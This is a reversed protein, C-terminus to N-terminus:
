GGTPSVSNATPVPVPAEEPAAVPEPDPEPAPTADAAKPGTVAEIAREAADKDFAADRLEAWAEAIQDPDHGYEKFLETAFADVEKDDLYVQLEDEFPDFQALRLSPETRKKLAWAVTRMATVDRFRLGSRVEAWTRDATREIVQVESTRLRSADFHQPEGGEPKYEIIM